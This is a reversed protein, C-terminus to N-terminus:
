EIILNIIQTSTTSNDFNIEFEIIYKGKEIESNLTIELISAQKETSKLQIPPSFINIPNTISNTAKNKISVKFNSNNDELNLQFDNLSPNELKMYLKVKENNEKKITTTNPLIIFIGDKNLISNLSEVNLLNQSTIEDIDKQTNTEKNKNYQLLTITSIIIILTLGILILNLTKLKNQKNQEM